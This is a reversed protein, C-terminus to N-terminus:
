RYFIGYCSFWATEDQINHAKLKIQSQIQISSLRIFGMEFGLCSAKFNEREM